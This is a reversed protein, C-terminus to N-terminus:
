GDSAPRKSVREIADTIAFSLYANSALRVALRELSPLAASNGNEALVDIAAGCVNPHTETDLLDGLLDTALQSDLDRLLDCSLIRVDSDQDSLLGPLIGKTVQPMAGLADLAGSRLQADDSRLALALADAAEATGILVLSTFIAERVDSATEVALADALIATSRHDSGLARAAAWREAGTGSALQRELTESVSAKETSPQKTPPGRRILPM